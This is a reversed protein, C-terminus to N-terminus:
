ILSYKALIKMILLIEEEDRKIDFEKKGSSYTKLPGGKIAEEEPVPIQRIYGRTAPGLTRGQLYGRTAVDSPIIAM